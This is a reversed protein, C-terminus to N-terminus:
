DGREIRNSDSDFHQTSFEFLETDKLAFMQHKLGTPVHFKDGEILTITQSLKKDVNWGYSVEIAGSQVYFVEDKLKHYHWSCKKGKAIFLLKGCYSPSNAIWKEYGWGKSVFKIPDGAQMLAGKSSEPVVGGRSEILSDLRKRMNDVWEMPMGGIVGM